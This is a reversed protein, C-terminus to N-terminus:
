EVQTQLKEKDKKLDTIHSNAQDLEASLNSNEERLKYMQEEVDQNKQKLNKVQEQM